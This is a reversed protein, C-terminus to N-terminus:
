AIQEGVRVAESSAPRLEKMDVGGCAGPARLGGTCTYKRGVREWDGLRGEMLMV